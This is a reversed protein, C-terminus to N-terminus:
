KFILLITDIHKISFETYIRPQVRLQLNLLSDSWQYKKPLRNPPLSLSGPSSGYGTHLGLPFVRRDATRM